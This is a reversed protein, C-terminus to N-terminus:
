AGDDEHDRHRRGYHSWDRDDDQEPKRGFLRECQTKSLYVAPHEFADRLRDVPVTHAFQEGAIEVTLTGLDTLPLYAVKVTLGATTRELLVNPDEWVTATM